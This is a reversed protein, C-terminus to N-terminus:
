LQQFQTYPQMPLLVISIGGRTSSLGQSGWVTFCTNMISMGGGSEKPRFVKNGNLSRTIEHARLVSIRLENKKPWNPGCIIFM